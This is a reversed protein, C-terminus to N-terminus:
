VYKDSGGVTTKFTFFVFVAVVTFVKAPLEGGTKWFNMNNDHLVVSHSIYLRSGERVTTNPGRLNYYIIIYDLM